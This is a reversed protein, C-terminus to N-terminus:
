SYQLHRSRLTMYRSTPTITPEASRRYTVTPSPPFYRYAVTEGFKGYGLSRDWPWPWSCLRWGHVVLDRRKRFFELHLGLRISRYAFILSAILGLILFAILVKVTTAIDINM